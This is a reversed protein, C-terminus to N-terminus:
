QRDLTDLGGPKRSFGRKKRGKRPEYTAPVGHSPILMSDLGLASFSIQVLAVALWSINPYLLSLIERADSVYTV